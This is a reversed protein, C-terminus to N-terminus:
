QRPSLSCKVDSAETYQSVSLVISQSAAKPTNGLAEPSWLMGSETKSNGSSDMSKAGITQGSVVANNIYVVLSSICVM